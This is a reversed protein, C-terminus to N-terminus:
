VHSLQEALKPVRLTSTQEFDRIISECLATLKASSANPVLKRVTVNELLRKLVGFERARMQRDLLYTAYTNGILSMLAERPSLPEVTPSAENDSREWLIYIAALRVPDSHFQYKNQTLDLYCKEWTPTLKPLEACDGYLAKVSAPWLRICPYAPQVLFFTKHDVLSVVDEALIGYGMDAFAAATTSKGAGAPGVIAIAEGGLVVASAHLCVGGRLLLILGMVPGLLYTATDELTLTDSPWIAWVKTGQKDVVFETGDAYRIQYYDGGSLQHIELRPEGNQAQECSSYWIEKTTEGSRSWTPLAGFHIRVDVTKSPRSRADIGPIKHDLNIELGYVSSYYSM